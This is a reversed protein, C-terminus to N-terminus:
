CKSVVGQRSRIVNQQPTLVRIRTWPGVTPKRRSRVDWADFHQRAIKLKQAVGTRIDLKQVVM